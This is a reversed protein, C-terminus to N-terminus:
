ENLPVRTANRTLRRIWSPAATSVLLVKPVRSALAIDFAEGGKEIFSAEDVVLLGHSHPARIGSFSPVVECKSTFLAFAGLLNQVRCHVHSITMPMGKSLRMYILTWM